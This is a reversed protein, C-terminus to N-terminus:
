KLIRVIRIPRNAQSKLLHKDYLFVGLYTLVLGLVAGIIGEYVGNLGPFNILLNFLYYGLIMMLLPLFFLLFASQVAFGPSIEIEVIEGPKVPVSQQVSLVQLKSKDMFCAGCSECAASSQMQVEISQGDNKIVVGHEKMKESDYLVSWSNFLLM